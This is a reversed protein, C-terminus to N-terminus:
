RSRRRAPSSRTARVLLRRREGQAARKVGGTLKKVIGEKWDQLENADDISVGQVKLGMGGHKVKEYTHAANILAKSPICGWNLCV